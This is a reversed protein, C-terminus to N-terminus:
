AGKRALTLFPEVNPAYGIFGHEPCEQRVHESGDKFRQITLACPKNCTPCLISHERPTPNTGLAERGPAGGSAPPAVAKTSLADARKNEERPVWKVDISKFEKALGTVRELLPRLRPERVRFKGLLQQIVLNSDGRITLDTVGIEKAKEMGRIIATYEAVNNTGQGPLKESIEALVTGDPADIVAGIGMTGPNPFCAGDFFLTAKM